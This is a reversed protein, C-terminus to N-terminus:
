KIVQDNISIFPSDLSCMIICTSSSREKWKKQWMQQWKDTDIISKLTKELVNFKTFSLVQEQVRKGEEITSNDEGLLNIDYNTYLFSGIMCCPSLLYNADIYLEKACLSECNIKDANPWDRHMQLNRKDIPTITTDIPQEINYIFDGKRNVVPFPKSFRKSNKLVFSQFGLEKSLKKAQSIQHDNHRFRIFSWEAKGGSNIFSTANSIIKNYDTGIRYYSHTDNLGDIGFIVKHNLPMELALKSWWETSRTSGNTVIVIKINPNMEKTYKIMSILDNNMTPEGFDGCFNLHNIQNLVEVNIIKTFDDFSWNNIKLLPNKLGGHINRPCMPCSAQCNNTIEIQIAKLQDFKFM